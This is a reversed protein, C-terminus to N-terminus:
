SRIIGQGSYDPLYFLNRQFPPKIDEIPKSLKVKLISIPGAKLMILKNKYPHSGNKLM